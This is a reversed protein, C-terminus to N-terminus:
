IHAIFSKRSIEVFDHSTFAEVVHEINAMLLTELENNRINGTSVLLLKYPRQSVFFSNVFDADKTVVVRQESLSLENIVSDPTRNGLPLDLTHITDHGAAQMKIALRRPLQADLLFKM